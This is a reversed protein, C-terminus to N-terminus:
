PTEAIFEYQIPRTDLLFMCRHSAVDTIAKSRAPPAAFLSACDEATSRAFFAIMEVKSAASGFM